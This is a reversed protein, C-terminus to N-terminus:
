GNAHAAEMTPVSARQWRRSMIGVFVINATYNHSKLVAAYVSHLLENETLDDRFLKELLETKWTGDRYCVMAEIQTM